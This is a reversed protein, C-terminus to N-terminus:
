LFSLSQSSMKYVCSRLSNDTLPPGSLILLAIAESRIIATKNINDPGVAREKKKILCPVEKVSLNRISHNRTVIIGEKERVMFVLSLSLPFLFITVGSLM